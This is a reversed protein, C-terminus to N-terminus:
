RLGKGRKGVAKKEKDKGTQGREGGLEGEGRVAWPYTEFTTM